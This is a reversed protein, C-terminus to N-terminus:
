SRSMSQSILKVCQELSMEHTDLELDYDVNEHVRAYQVKASGLYRDSRESERVELIELPAIVGVYLTDFDKLVRKWENVQVAGFSVDDIILDFKKALLVAIEQLSACIKQAYPGVHMHPGDEKEIWCFGEPAFGGEWDNIKSPMFGIVHDIGIHLFPDDLYDQLAKALTTKGCSTPGNLYIIM